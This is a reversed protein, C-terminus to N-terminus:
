PAFVGQELTAPDPWPSNEAFKMADIAIQKQAKDMAQFEQENIMGLEELQKQLYLIPDKKMCEKVSEKSRYLGPDSISHGKFRETVCEVLVPRQTKKVKEFLTKFAQYCAFFNMGDVTFGEIGYGPAKDEALRDVSVAREVGTGMGWQNNEIVVIIPLDWLAALNMSEHFAGQPVAGDGLFCFAVEDRNKTYKLTFAAGIGIPVQGGVIGMGGLLRDTFFHMSGGRGKANGNARGYLEAMLENPTAGLLLALAHCRYSTVWWNQASCAAVAATQIAEQGIYSHFFGGIHGQLYAAEARTEFNRILLMKELQALLGEKGLSATVQDVSFPFCTGDLLDEMKIEKGDYVM